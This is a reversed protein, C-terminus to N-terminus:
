PAFNLRLPFNATVSLLLSRTGVSVYYYHKGTVTQPKATDPMIVILHVIKFVGM